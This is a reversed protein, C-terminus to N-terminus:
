HIAMQSAAVRKREVAAASQLTVCERPAPGAGNVGLLIPYSYHSRLQWILSIPNDRHRTTPSPLREDIRGARIPMQGLAGARAIRDAASRDHIGGSKDNISQQM